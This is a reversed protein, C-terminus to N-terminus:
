DGLHTEWNDIKEVFAALKGSNVNATVKFEMERLRNVIEAFTPREDREAAWCDTILAQAPPLVSDPIRPRVGRTVQCQIAYPNLNAPFAPENTLIEFLILGFAFVDSAPIFINDYCEPAFYHSHISYWLRPADSSPDGCFGAIRVNWNWDLLINDPKLNCHTVECDHAFRMALAIGAVAKAIRNPRRLGSEAALNDALSGQGAYATVIPGSCAHTEALELVLPHKVDKLIATERRILEM